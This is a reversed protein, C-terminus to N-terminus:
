GGYIAPCLCFVDNDSVIINFNSCSENNKTIILPKEKLKNIEEISINDNLIEELTKKGEFDFIDEKKNMIKRVNLFYKITIKM